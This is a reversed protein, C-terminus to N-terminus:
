REEKNMTSLDKSEEIAVVVNDFRSTLSRLIKDVVYQETITGRYNKVQNMLRTIRITFESIVEKEGM